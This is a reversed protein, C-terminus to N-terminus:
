HKANLTAHAAGSEIKSGERERANGGDHHRNIEPWPARDDADRRQVWHMLKM